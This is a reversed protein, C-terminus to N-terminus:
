PTVLITPEAVQQSLLRIVLAAAVSRHALRSLQQADHHDISDKVLFLMQGSRSLTRRNYLNIQRALERTLDATDRSTQLEGNYFVSSVMQAVREANPAAGHAHHCASWEPPASLITVDPAPERVRRTTRSPTWKIIIAAQGAGNGRVLWEGANERLEDLSESWGSEVVIRPVMANEVDVAVNPSKRIGAFPGHPFEYQETARAAKDVLIARAQVNGRIATERAAHLTCVIADASALVACRLEWSGARFDKWTADDFEEAARYLRYHESGVSAHLLTGVAKQHGSNIKAHPLLIELM